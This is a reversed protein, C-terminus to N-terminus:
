VKVRLDQHALPFGSLLLSEMCFLSHVSSTV